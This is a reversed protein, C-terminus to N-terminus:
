PKVGLAEELAELDGDLAAMTAAEREKETIWYEATGTVHSAYSIVAATWREVEGMLRAVETSAKDLNENEVAWRKKWDDREAIPVFEMGCEYCTWKGKAGYVKGDVKKMHPGYVVETHKCNSM